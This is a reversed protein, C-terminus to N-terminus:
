GTCLVTKFQLLFPATRKWFTNSSHAAHPWMNFLEGDGYCEAEDETLPIIPKLQIFAVAVLASRTSIGSPAIPLRKLATTFLSWTWSNCLSNICQAKHERYARGQTTAPRSCVTSTQLKLHHKPLRRLLGHLIECTSQETRQM